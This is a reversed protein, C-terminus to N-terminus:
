EKSGRPRGNRRGFFWGVLATVVIVLAAGLAQEISTPLTDDLSV